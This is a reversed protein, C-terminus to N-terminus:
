TTRIEGLGLERQVQLTRIAAAPDANRLLVTDAITAARVGVEPRIRGKDAASEPSPIVVARLAPATSVPARTITTTKVQAQAAGAALGSFATAVLLHTRLAM